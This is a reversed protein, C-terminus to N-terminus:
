RSSRPTPSAPKAHLPHLGAHPDAGPGVARAPPPNPLRSSRASTRRSPFRSGQPRPRRAVGPWSTAVAGTRSPRPSATSTSARAPRLRAPRRVRGAFELTRTFWDRAQRRHAPDPHNPALSVFDPATQLFVDAAVLGRDGLKAALTRASGHLDDFVQSPWLHSRGEFLGIDVGEFELLAILDLVKDHALLPFTFDACALKLTM